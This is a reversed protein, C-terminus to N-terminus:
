RYRHDTYRPLHRRLLEEMIQTRDQGQLHAVLSLQANIEPSLQGSPSRSTAPTAPKSGSLLNRGFDLSTANNDMGYMHGNTSAGTTETNAHSARIHMSVLSLVGWMGVAIGTLGIAMGMSDAVSRTCAAYGCVSAALVLIAAPTQNM